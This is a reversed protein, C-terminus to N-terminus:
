LNGTKIFISFTTCVTFKMSILASYFKNQYCHLLTFSVFKLKLYKITRFYKITKLLHYLKLHFNFTSFICVIRLLQLIFRCSFKFCFWNSYNLDLTLFIYLM